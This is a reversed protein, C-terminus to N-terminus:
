EEALKTNWADEMQTMMEATDSGAFIQDMGERVGVILATYKPNMTTSYVNSLPYAAIVNSYEPNLALYEDDLSQRGSYLAAKEAFISCSEKSFMHFFMDAAASANKSENNVAIYNGILLTQMDSKVFGIQGPFVADISAFSTEAALQMAAIGQKVGDQESKGPDTFCICGEDVLKKINDLAEVTEPTNFAATLDDNWLKFDEQFMSALVYMIQETDPDIELGYVQVNGNDDRVTLKRVLEYFDEPTEIHLEDETVGNQEAIDKRYLWVRTSPMLIGYMNGNNYGAQLVNEYFDEAGDWGEPIYDSLNLTYGLNNVSGMQGYGLMFIDPGAGGILGTNLKTFYDGWPIFTLEYSVNSNDKCYNDFVERYAEDYVAEGSGALWITLKVPDESGSAQTESNTEEEKGSTGKTETDGSTSNNNGSGCATLMFMALVLCVSLIKKISKM